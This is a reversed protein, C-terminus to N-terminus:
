FEAFCFSLLTFHAPSVTTKDQEEGSRKKKKNDTQLLSFDFHFFLFANLNKKKVSLWGSVFHQLTILRESEVDEITM